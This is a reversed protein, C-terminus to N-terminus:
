NFDDKKPVILRTPEVNSSRIFMLIRPPNTGSFIFTGPELGRVELWRSHREVIKLESNSNLSLFNGSNSKKPGSLSRHDSLDTDDDGDDDNDHNDHDHDDNDDDDDNDNDDDDGLDRDFLFLLLCFDPGTFNTRFLRLYHPAM